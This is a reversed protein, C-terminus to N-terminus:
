YNGNSWGYCKSFYEDDYHKAKDLERLRNVPSSFREAWAEADARKAKIDACIEAQTPTKASTRKAAERAIREREEQLKVEKIDNDARAKAASQDAETPSATSVQVQKADPACPIDSFVLKGDVSCKYVGGFATPSVVLLLAIVFHRAPM